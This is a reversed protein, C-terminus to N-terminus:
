WGGWLEDAQRGLEAYRREAVDRQEILAECADLDGATEADEAAMQLRECDASLERMLWDLGYEGLRNM